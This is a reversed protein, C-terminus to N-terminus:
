EDNNLEHILGYGYQYYDINLQKCNPCKKMSEKYRACCYDCEKKLNLMDEYIEGIFTVKPM